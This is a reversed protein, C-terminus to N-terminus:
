KRMSIFRFLMFPLLLDFIVRSVDHACKSLETLSLYFSTRLNALLKVAAFDRLTYVSHGEHALCVETM